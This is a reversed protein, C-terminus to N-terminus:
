QGTLKKMASRLERGKRWVAYRLDSYAHAERVTRELDREIAEVAILVSERYDFADEWFLFAIDDLLGTADRREPLHLRWNSAIRANKFTFIIRDSDVEVLWRHHCYGAYSKSEIGMTQEIRRSPSEIYGAKAVRNLEACVFIPDRIDELLHSCIAFDFFRDPFPWPTRDCVDRIVWTSDGFREPAPYVQGLLGRTEYPMIDLVWDARPFPKM